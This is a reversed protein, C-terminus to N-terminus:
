SVDRSFRITGREIGEHVVAIGGGAIMWELRHDRYQRRIQGAQLLAALDPLAAITQQLQDLVKAVPPERNVRDFWEALRSGPQPFYGYGASRNLYPAVAIDGWGFSVGNFWRRGDLQRDLWQQYREINARGYAVLRDALEGTARRFRTVEMTGWNNPEYQTDMVDEIMRVRAREAPSDPLLRPEPWKDELYELIITSDFVQVDGDILTPVEARFNAGVFEGAAKGQSMGDPIVAEFPLGKANLAMKVKMAYASLPHEYLRLM